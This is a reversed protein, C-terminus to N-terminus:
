VRGSTSTLHPAQGVFTRDALQTTIFAAVDARSISTMRVAEPDVTAAYTGTLPGLTLRAPRVITWELPSDSVVSERDRAARGPSRGTVSELLRAAAGGASRTDSSAAADSVHIVSRTGASTMERLVLRLGDLEAPAVAWIVADQDRVAARVARPQGVSGGYIRVSPDGSLYQAPTRTFATVTHGASLARMVLVRGLRGSAGLVLVKMTSLFPVM